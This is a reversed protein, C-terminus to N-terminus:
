PLFVENHCTFCRSKNDDTQYFTNKGECACFEYLKYDFNIPLHGYKKYIELESLYCFGGRSERRELTQSSGYMKEYAAWILQAGEPTIYAVIEKTADNLLRYKKAM